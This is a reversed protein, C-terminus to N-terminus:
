AARVALEGERGSQTHTEKKESMSGEVKERGKREGVWWGM